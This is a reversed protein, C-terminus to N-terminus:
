LPYFVQTNYFIWLNKFVKNNTFLFIDLLIHGVSCFGATKACEEFEM